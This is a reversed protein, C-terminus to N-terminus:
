RERQSPRAIVMESSTTSEHDARNANVKTGIAHIPKQLVDLYLIVFSGVDEQVILLCPNGGANDWSFNNSFRGNSCQSCRNSRGGIYM